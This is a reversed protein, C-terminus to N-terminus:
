DFVARHRNDEVTAIPTRIAPNVGLGERFTLILDRGNAALNDGDHGVALVVGARKLLIGTRRERDQRVEFVAVGHREVNREPHAIFHLRHHAVRSPVDGRRLAAVGPQQRDGGREHDARVAQDLRAEDIRVVALAHRDLVQQRCEPLRTRRGQQRGTM